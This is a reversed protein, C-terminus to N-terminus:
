VQSPEQVIRDFEGATNLDPRDFDPIYLLVLRRGDIPLGDDCALYPARGGLLFAEPSRRSRTRSTSVPGSQERWCICDPLFIADGSNDSIPSRMNGRPVFKRRQKRSQFRRRRAVECARRRSSIAPDVTLLCAVVSGEVFRQPGRVVRNAIDCAVNEVRGFQPSFHTQCHVRSGTAIEARFARRKLLDVPSGGPRPSPAHLWYAPRCILSSRCMAMFRHDASTLITRAGRRPGVRTSRGIAARKLHCLLRVPTRAM